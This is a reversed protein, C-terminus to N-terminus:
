PTGAPAPARTPSLVGKALGLLGTSRLLDHPVFLPILDEEILATKNGCSWAPRREQMQRVTVRPLRGGPTLKVGAGVIELLLRVSEPVTGVTERFRRDVYKADFAPLEGGLWRRVAAHEPHTPDACYVFKAPLDRLRATTADLRGEVMDTWGMAAQLLDHLEPLTADAPVDLTRTAPPHVERLHVRLRITRM